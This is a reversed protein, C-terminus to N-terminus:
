EPVEKNKKRRSSKILSAVILVILIAIIAIFAYTLLGFGTQKGNQLGLTILAVSYSAYHTGADIYSIEAIIPLTAGTYNPPTMNFSQKSLSYPRLSVERSANNVSFGPPAILQLRVRTTNPSISTM